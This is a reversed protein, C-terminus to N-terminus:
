QYRANIGSIFHGRFHEHTEQWPRLVGTALGETLQALRFKEPRGAGPRIGFCSPSTFVFPIGLRVVALTRLPPAYPVFRPRIGIRERREDQRRSPRSIRGRM